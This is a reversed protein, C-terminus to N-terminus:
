SSQPNRLHWPHVSNLISPINRNGQRKSRGCSSLMTYQLSSRTGATTEVSVPRVDRAQRKSWPIPCSDRGPQSDQSVLRCFSCHWGTESWRARGSRGRRSDRTLLKTTARSALRVTPRAAHNLAGPTSSHALALACTCFCQLLVEVQYTTAIELRAGRKGAWEFGCFM